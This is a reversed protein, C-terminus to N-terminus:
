DDGDGDNGHDGEAEAGIENQLPPALEALTTVAVPRPSQTTEIGLLEVRDTLLGCGLLITVSNSM